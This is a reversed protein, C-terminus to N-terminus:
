INRTIKMAKPPVGAGACPEASLWTCSAGGNM